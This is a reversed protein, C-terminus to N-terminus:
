AGASESEGLGDPELRTIFPLSDFHKDYSVMPLGHGHAIVAHIADRSSLQPYKELLDRAAVMDTPEVPLVESVIRFFLDFVAFAQERRSLHLYRHLIEQFVEVDTVTDFVDQAALELFKTCPAKWPSPAGAAYMPINVDVFYRLRM